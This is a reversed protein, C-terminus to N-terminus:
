GLVAPWVILAGVNLLSHALTVGVLSDTREVLVAFLLGYAGAFLVYAADEAGLYAAAFLLSGWLLGTAGFIRTLGEQLLGRFLLEEPVASFLVVVAVAVPLQPSSADVLQEPRAVAYGLLGLPLGALAIPAQERWTWSRVRRLFQLPRLVRAAVVVGVLVPAGVIALQYLRRVEDVALTLSLIRTLALLALVLLVDLHAAAATRSAGFLYHQLVALLVVAHAAVGPVVGVFVTVLEAGVIGAAYVGVTTRTVDAPLPVSMATSSAVRNM